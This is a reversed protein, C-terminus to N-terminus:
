SRTAFGLVQLVAGAGAHYRGERVERVLEECRELALGAEELVRRVEAPEYLRELAPPGGTRHELQRPTYAELVLAGGPALGAAAARHVRRRLGPPMHCFIEVVGSWRGPEVAHDALDAHVTEIAVGREAALARAKALGVASADVATVQHGQGALFVANRGEGEGLCLVPGPPIRAAVQRLLDNPETGYAWGEEAYREDWM